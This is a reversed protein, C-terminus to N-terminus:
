LAAARMIRRRWALMGTFAVSLGLLTSMADPVGQHIDGAYFINDTDARYKLTTNQSLGDVFSVDLFRFLDGVPTNGGIGVADRYTANITDNQDAASITNVAFDAGGGSNTSGDSGGFTTDFVCNGLGADILLRTLLNSSTNMLTWASALFTNGFASLSWGTGTVGGSAAGTDAWFLTQSSSDSFFATVSMGDMTAGSTTGASLASTGNVFGTDFSVNVTIARASSGLLALACVSILLPKM